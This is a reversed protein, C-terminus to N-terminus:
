CQMSKRTTQKPCKKHQSNGFIRGFYGRKRIHVRWLTVSAPSAM